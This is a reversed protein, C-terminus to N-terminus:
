GSLKYDVITKQKEQKAICKKQLIILLANVNYIMMILGQLYCPIGQRERERLMQGKQDDSKTPGRSQM